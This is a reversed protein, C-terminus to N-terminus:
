YQNLASKIVASFEESLQMGRHLVGTDLWYCRKTSTGDKLHFELFYAEAGRPSSDQDVPAELIMGVLKDIQTQYKISALETDGDTSSNISIYEVKGGIDLLDGGKKAKPNTDAEFIIFGQNNRVVLRFDPAYGGLLYVPTGMELYAADGNKIKYAPNRVNDAVKYSIKDYPSLDSENIAAIQNTRLYTIDNLKVFDVWDINSIGWPISSCGALCILLIMTLVIVLRQM